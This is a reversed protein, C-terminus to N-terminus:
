GHFFEAEAIGTNGMAAMYRICPKCFFYNPTKTACKSCNRLKTGPAIYTTYNTADLPTYNSNVYAKANYKRSSAVKCEPCQRRAWAKGKTDLYVRQNGAMPGKIRTKVKDCTYCKIDERDPIIKM